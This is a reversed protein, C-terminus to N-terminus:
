PGLKYCLSGKEITQPLRSALPTQPLISVRIHVASDRQQGGSVIVSSNSLYVEICFKFFIIFFSLLINKIKFLSTQICKQCLDLKHTKAESCRSEKMQLNPHRTTGYLDTIFM